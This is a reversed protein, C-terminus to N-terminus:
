EYLKRLTDYDPSEKNIKSIETRLHKELFIKDQQELIEKETVNFNMIVNKIKKRFSKPFVRVFLTKALSKRMMAKQLHKNKPNGSRNSREAILKQEDLGLFRLVKSIEADPQCNFKDFDVIYLNEGFLNRAHEVKEVYRSSEIYQWIPLHNKRKGLLEENMAERFSKSERVDRKMHSYASFARQIPDRLCIIIKSEPYENKILELAASEEITMASGDITFKRTNYLSRYTNEDTIFMQDVTDDDAVGKFDCGRVKAFHYHPEKHYITEVDKHQILMDYLSTTAAKTVGIIFLDAM